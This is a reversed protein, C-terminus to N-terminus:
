RGNERLLRDCEPLMHLFQGPTGPSNLFDRAKVHFFLELLADLREDSRERDVIDLVAPFDRSEKVRYLAGARCKAYLRPYREIFGRARDSLDSDAIFRNPENARVIEKEKSSAFASASAPSVGFSPGSSSALSPRFTDKAADKRRPVAPHNLSDKGGAGRANRVREDRVMRRSVITGDSERSFVAAAELEALLAEIHKAKEGVMRALIDASIAKTGVRLTGYPDGDHMICLMEHWLGRAGLSCSQLATDRRWDGPYFQFAPRKRADTRRAADGAAEDARIERIPEPQM